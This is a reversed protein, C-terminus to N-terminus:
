YGDISGFVFGGGHFFMVLPLREGAGDPAYIRLAITGGPGPIARDEVAGVAQEDTAGIRPRTQRLQAVPLEHMQPQANVARLLTEIEPALPM